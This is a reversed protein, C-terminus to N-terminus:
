GAVTAAAPAAPAAAAFFTHTHVAQVNWLPRLWVMQVMHPVAAGALLLELPAGLAELLFAGVFFLLLPPSPPPLLLRPPPPPAAAAARAVLPSPVTSHMRERLPRWRPSKPAASRSSTTRAHQTHTGPPNQM